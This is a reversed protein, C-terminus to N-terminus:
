LPAAADMSLKVIVGLMLIILALLVYTLTGMGGGAAASAAALAAEKEASLDQLQAQLKGITELNKQLEASPARQDEQAVEQRAALEAQAATLQVKLQKNEAELKDLQRADELEVQALHATREDSTIAGAHHAEGAELILLKSKLRIETWENVVKGKTDVVGKEKSKKELARWWDSVDAMTEGDMLETDRHSVQLLFKDSLKKRSIDALSVGPEVGLDKLTQAQLVVEINITEGAELTAANPRM